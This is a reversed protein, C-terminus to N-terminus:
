GADGKSAWAVWTREILGMALPAKEAFTALGVFGVVIVAFWQPWALRRPVARSVANQIEPRAAQIAALAAREADKVKELHIADRMQGFQDAFHDMRQALGERAQAELRMDRQVSDKFRETENIAEEVKAELRKYFDTQNDIVAEILRKVDVQTPQAPPRRAPM